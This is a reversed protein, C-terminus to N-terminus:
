GPKTAHSTATVTGFGQEWDQVQTYTFHAALDGEGTGRCGGECRWGAQCQLLGEPPRSIGRGEGGWVEWGWGQGTAFRHQNGM